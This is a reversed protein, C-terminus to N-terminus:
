TRSMGRGAADGKIRNSARAGGRDEEKLGHGKAEEKQRKRRRIRNRLVDM